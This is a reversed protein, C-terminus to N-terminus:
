GKVAEWSDGVKVEFIVPVELTVANEAEHKMLAAM